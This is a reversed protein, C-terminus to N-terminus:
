RWATVRINSDAGGNRRIWISTAKKGPLELKENTDVIGHVARAADSVDRPDFSYDVSQAGTVQLCIHESIFAVGDASLFPVEVWVSSSLVLEFFTANHSVAIEGFKEEGEIRSM